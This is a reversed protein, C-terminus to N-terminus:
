RAGDATAATAPEEPQPGELEAEATAPRLSVFDDYHDQCVGKAFVLSFDARASRRVLRVVVTNSGRRLEVGSVHVNEATWWDVTDRRAIERGNVWLVFADTHGILAMVTRDEPSEFRRVAYVVCPGEFGVLDNVSFKDEYVSVVRGEYAVDTTAGGNREEPLPLYARDLSAVTNLHYTRLRDTSEDSNGQAVHGMYSEGPGLPPVEVVNEWFPGFVEWLAAGVVGFRYEAAPHGETSLSVRFENREPLRDPDEPAEISLFCSATGRAPLDVPIRSEPAIRWGSPGEVSVSGAVARDTRNAIRLTVGVVDGPGAAPRGHYEVAFAFPAPPEIPLPTRDPAGTISVARNVTGAFHLGVRCTDEALDGIRTSRRPADVGLVFDLDDFGHDARIRRAGQLIGLIAGATACTCDTDFGCNLAVISTEILDGRGFHLALLTIGINQFLNTCDPHGYDRIIRSRVMRWDDDRACWRRVDSILRYLRSSRPVQALGIDYLRDWDSEVFAASELAALFREAYVSEGAHDLVADKEAYEAALEPNGPIVCAWIESRIPSGMGQIYYDNNFSGSTPPRIGRRYNKKFIAYEGPAYPCRTAFAEALDDSTVHEGKRELVDLWLVQLDLDDNPLMNEIMRPHFEISLLQKMGEYPTGITGALCKGLWCGWVRDYYDQYTM